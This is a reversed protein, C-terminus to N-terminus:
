RTRSSSPAASSGEEQGLEDVRRYVFDAGRVAESPDDTM